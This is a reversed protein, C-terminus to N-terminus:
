PALSLDANAAETRVASSLILFSEKGRGVNTTATVRNAYLLGALRGDGRELDNGHFTTAGAALEVPGGILHNDSFAASGFALVKGPDQALLTWALTNGQVVLRNVGANLEFPESAQAVIEELRSELEDIRDPTVVGYLSLGGAVLNGRVFVHGRPDEVSLAARPYGGWRDELHEGLRALEPQLHEFREFAAGSRILEAATVAARALRPDAIGLPSTAFGELQAAPVRRRAFSTSRNNEAVIALAPLDEDRAATLLNLAVGSFRDRGGDREQPVAALRCDDVRTTGCDSLYILTGLSRGETRVALDRLRVEDVSVCLLLHDELGGQGVIDIGALSVSEAKVVEFPSLLRLRAGCGHIDLRRVFDIAEHEFEHDGPLLCLCVLGQHKDALDRIAEEIRGYDGGEGVSACCSAAGGEGAPRACLKDLAEQVTAVGALDACAGPQYSVTAARRTRASFRVPLGVPQGAGDLLRAELTSQDSGPAVSWGVSATGDAATPVTVPGAGGNISGGGATLTFRVSRDAVPIPGRSVGVTPRIPLQVPAPSLTSPTVEQGDGAVYFLSDLGSLPPFVPRLDTVTAGEILALAAYHAHIGAAPLDAGEHGTPAATRAPVLWHDGTRFRGGAPASSFGVTLNHELLLRVGPAPITITGGALAADTVATGGEDFLTGGQDWRRIRLNSGAVPRGQADLVFDTAGLPQTLLVTRTAEDIGGGSRIRRLVGPQGALERAEDLLEIWEGDHLSLVDDPGLRDVVLRDRTAPISTVRAAVTANDRSWKFTAAGAPGPTHVEVRYLQNEVGTYGGTPSIQCPSPDIDVTATGVSLRATAPPEAGLFGPVTALAAGPVFGAPVPVAKVQWITRMRTTTDVGLAPEVLDPDDVATVERRWVKLYVLVKGTSPLPPPTPLHPQANYSVTTTGVLEALTARWADAPRGHNEALVGDVYMRGIGILAAGGSLSIKFGDLTESPVGARGITDLAEAQVRRRIHAAQENWDADTLIRGQQLLVASEGDRPDHTSRSYDGNM